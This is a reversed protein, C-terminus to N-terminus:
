REGRAPVDIVADDDPQYRMVNGIEFAQELFRDLAYAVAARDSKQKAALFDRMVLVEIWDDKITAPYIRAGESRRQRHARVREANTKAIAARAPM